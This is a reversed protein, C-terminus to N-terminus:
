AQRIVRNRCSWLTTLAVVVASGLAPVSILWAATQPLTLWVGFCVVGALTMTWGVRRLGAQVRREADLDARPSKLQKPVANAMSAVLLGMFAMLFRTASDGDLWGSHSGFKLLAAAALLAAALGLAGASRTLMM